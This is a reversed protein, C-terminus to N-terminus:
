EQLSGLIGRGVWHLIVGVAVYIVVVVAVYVMEIHQSSIGYIM